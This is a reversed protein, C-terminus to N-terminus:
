FPFCCDIWPSNKYFKQIIYPDSQYCMSTRYGTFFRLLFWPIASDQYNKPFILKTLKGYFENMNKGFLKEKSEKEKDNEKQSSIHSKKESQIQSRIVTYSTKHTYYKNIGKKGNKAISRFESILKLLKGM